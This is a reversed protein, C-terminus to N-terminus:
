ATPADLRYVIFRHGGIQRDGVVRFGLSLLGHIRTRSPPFEVLLYPLDRTKFVEELLLDLVERGHGWFAPLLVLSISAGDGDPEIGGWGAFTGDILIAEPGFGHERSIREKGAVWDRIEDPGMPDPDALPMHRTVLPDNVLRQLHHVDISSLRVFEIV